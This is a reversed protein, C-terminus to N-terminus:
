VDERSHHTSLSVACWFPAVNEGQVEVISVDRMQTPAYSQWYVAAIYHGAVAPFFYIYCTQKKDPRAASSRILGPILRTNEIMARM